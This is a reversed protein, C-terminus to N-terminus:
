AATKPRDLFAMTTVLLAAAVMTGDRLLTKWSIMESTGFCGCNIEMGKAYARLMLGFFTLLLLSVISGSIRLWVGAILLLGVALELWPIVHAVLEVAQLPLIRYSDISMAFLQWPDRLKTWAAYVFICGLAVRLVLLFLRVLKNSDM